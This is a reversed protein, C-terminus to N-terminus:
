WAVIRPQIKEPHEKYYKEREEREKKKEAERMQMMRQIKEKMGPKLHRKKKEM